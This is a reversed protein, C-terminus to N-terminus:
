RIRRRAPSTSRPHVAQQRTLAEDSTRTQVRTCVPRHCSRAPPRRRPARHRSAESPRPLAGAQDRAKESPAEPETPPSTIARSRPSKWPLASANGLTKSEGGNGDALTGKGLGGARASRSLSRVPRNSRTSRTSCREDQGNHASRRRQFSNGDGHHGGMRCTRPPKTGHEDIAVQLEPIKMQEGPLGGESSRRPERSGPDPKRLQRKRLACRRQYRREISELRCLVHSASRGANNEVREATDGIHNHHVRARAPSLM